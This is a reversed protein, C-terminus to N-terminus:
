GYIKEEFRPKYVENWLEAIQIAQETEDVSVLWSCIFNTAGFCQDFISRKESITDLRDLSNFAEEIFAILKKM